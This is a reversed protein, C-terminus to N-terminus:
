YGTETTYQEAMTDWSTFKEDGRHDPLMYHEQLYMTMYDTVKHAGSLNM